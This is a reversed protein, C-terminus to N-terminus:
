RTVNYLNEEYEYGLPYSTNFIVTRETIGARVHGHLFNKACSSSIIAHSPEVRRSLSCRFFQDCKNKNSYFTTYFQELATTILM